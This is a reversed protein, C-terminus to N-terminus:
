TRTRAQSGAHKRQRHTHTHTHTHTCLSMGSLLPELAELHICKQIVSKMARKAKTKLDESSDENLYVQQTHANHTHTHARARICAPVCVSPVFIKVRVCVIGWM